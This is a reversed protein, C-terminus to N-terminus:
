WGLPSLWVKAELGTLKNFDSKFSDIVSQNWELESPSYAGSSKFRFGVIASDDDSGDYYPACVELEENDLLESLNEQDEFDERPLGVFIAAKYDIGM